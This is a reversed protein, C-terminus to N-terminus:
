PEDEVPLNQWYTGKMINSDVVFQGTAYSQSIVISLKDQDNRGKAVYLRALGLKQEATTQTYTLVIDSHAIKTYAEAVNEMGVQKSKAASRHSQSVAALAINRSVAIGRLEKFTQDLDLRINDRDLKFLDPYDVILLDPTFKQTAELNDLYATLQPVTLHGTPFEKIFINDLMRLSWRDIRRELKKRINPDDYALSPTIKVDDFGTIRGLTDRKFKTISVAENRKAIAFLAQHYRQTARDESMELTIHLVRLRHMLAMKALQGLAWSKGASSNAILLWLEKRTPGFNRKDLEPIGTPFSSHTTELYKLSRKKDSLRTGPDFVKLSQKNASALLKEAEELSEETDRQLAKTLDVAVTRLSQRKVFTELQSMIYDSNVNKRAEYISQIIDEYLSAESTKAELKDSLIDPLHDGPPKKFSDLYGYIRAAVVRYPGGYLNLDVVGRIITAREADYALM